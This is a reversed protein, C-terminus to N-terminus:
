AAWIENSIKTQIGYLDVRCKNKDSTGGAEEEGRRIVLSVVNWVINSEGSIISFQTCEM